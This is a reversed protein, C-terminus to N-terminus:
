FPIAIWAAITGALTLVVPILWQWNNTAFRRAAFGINVKIHIQKDLVSVARRGRVIGKAEVRMNVSLTITQHGARCPLVDFDWRAPKPIILQEPPSQSTIEFASGSLKVEMYLSTDIEEFQPEGRGHLDSILAERLGASRAIRVEVREKQGQIMETPVSFMLPGTQIVERVARSVVMDHPLWPPTPASAAPTGTTWRRWEVLVGVTVLVAFTAVLVWTIM